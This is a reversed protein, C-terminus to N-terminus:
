SVPHVKNRKAARFPMSSLLPYAVCPALDALRSRDARVFGLIAAINLNILFTGVGGGWAEGCFGPSFRRAWSHDTRESLCVMLRIFSSIARKSLRPLPAAWFDQVRRGNSAM